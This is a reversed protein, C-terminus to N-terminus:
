RPVPVFLVRGSGTDAIVALNTLPHIDVAFQLAGRLALDGAVAPTENLQPPLSLVARIRKGLFDVVTVTHSATNTSILTSTLYNFAIATPNIGISFFTQQQTAPDLAFLSNGTSSNALFCGDADSFCDDPVPDYVVSTPVSINNFTSIVSGGSGSAIDVSNSTSAAVAVQHTRYNFAVANPGQVNSITKISGTSVDFVTVTNAGNNAVAAEGTDQDAAVGVPAAGTAITSTVSAALEDVVSANNSQNNAVVAKHLRPLVAVGLPSSTSGLAVTRGTGSSLDVLAVSNCGFLSVVAINQQPDIAVGSPLPAATCGNGAVDVSQVVTFDSVNTVSAGDLVDVAFRRPSSLLSPPVVATLKRDSVFTTSLSVSDLRVKSSSTFGKGIVTLPLAAPTPASSLTSTTVFMKPSTETISFPQITGLNLISVTNDGQNAVVATNSGPDIAVAVPTMGTNFTTLVGPTSPDIVALQNASLGPSSNVVVAVNTLENFAGAVNGLSSFTSGSPPAPLVTNSLDLLNFFLVGGGASPNELVAQQTEPNIGVGQLSNGLSRTAIPQSYSATGTANFSLKDPHNADNPQTYTFQANGPGVSAVNYVGTFTGDAVGQILVADGVQIALLPQDPTTSIQVTVVGTTRSVSTIQNTTQRGLDVVNLSGLGGPTALAWNLHPEVAVRSNGGTSISVVGIIAPTPLTLDILLGYNHTNSNKLNMTVLARGSVPNVGVAIPPDQTPIVTTISPPVPPKASADGLDVVAISNSKANAVLALNRVSDVAVSTPGSTACSAPQVVAATCLFVKSAPTALDFVTVNDSGSNAVIVRGTAPNIAVDSPTTGVSLPSGPDPTIASLSSGFVPQIALNTAAFKTPDSDSRIAVQHLGPTSFDAPNNFPPPTTPPNTPISGITVSIQRPNNVTATRTQADGDFTAHVAPLSTTGYFGGNVNFSRVGGSGQPMNDPSPGSVAPRVVTVVIQCQVFKTPDSAPCTQVVGNQRSVGVQLIGATAVASGSIRARIVSSSV